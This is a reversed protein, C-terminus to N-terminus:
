SRRRTEPKKYEISKLVEQFFELPTVELGDIIKLLTRFRLDDFKGAEFKAMSSRSIEIDYAFSEYSKFGNKKRLTKIRKGIKELFDDHDFHGLTAKKKEPKLKSNAM